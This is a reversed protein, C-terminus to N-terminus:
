DTRSWGYQRVVQVVEISYKEYFLRRGLEQAQVHRPQAHWREIAAPDDFYSITMGERTSPDRFSQHQLYGPIQMVLEDMERSWTQYEEESHDTRTSRFICAVPLPTSMPLDYLRRGRDVTRRPLQVPGRRDRASVTSGSQHWSSAATM